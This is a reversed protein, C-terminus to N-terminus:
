YCLTRRPLRIRALVRVRVLQEIITPVLEARLVAGSSTTGNKTLARVGRSGCIYVCVCVCTRVRVLRCPCLWLCVFRSM